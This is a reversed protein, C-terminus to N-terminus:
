GAAAQRYAVTTLALGLLWLIPGLAGPWFPVLGPMMLLWVFGVDAVSIIALNLWYGMASNKWNYAAAIGIAAIAIALLHWAAQALRAGVLGDEVSQSLGYLGNAAMIHLLGWLVYVVAGAKHAQKIM